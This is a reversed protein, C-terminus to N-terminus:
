LNVENIQANKVWGTEGNTLLIRSWSKRKDTVYVKLGEGLRFAIQDNPSPGYRVEAEKVMVVADRIVNQQVSRLAYVGLAVVVLFLLTKRLAGWKAGPRFYVSFAMTLLFLSLLSLVVILVEKEKVRKLIDEGTKLYWNREDEIRYELLSEVYNLNARTDQDRPNLMLAREYNLITEGLKGLRFQTNGLNFYFTSTEPYKQALTEYLYRAEEFKQDRYLQNADNFMEVSEADWALAQPPVMVLGLMLVM